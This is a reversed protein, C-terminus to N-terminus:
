RSRTTTSQHPVDVDCCDVLPSVSDGEVSVVSSSDFRSGLSNARDSGIPFVIIRGITLLAILWYFIITIKSVPALRAIVGM